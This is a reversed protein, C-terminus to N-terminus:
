SFSQEDCVGGDVLAQRIVDICDDFGKNYAIHIMSAILYDKDEFDPLVSATEEISSVAKEGFRGVLLQRDFRGISTLANTKDVIFNLVAKEKNEM